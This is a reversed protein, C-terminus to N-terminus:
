ETHLLLQKTKSAAKVEKLTQDAAWILVYEDEDFIWYTWEAADVSKTKDARPYGLSMIVQEKTMGTTVKGALIAARISKPFTALKEQPNTKVALRAVFKEVTDQERGFDLGIWMPRGEIEVFARHRGYEKVIIRSGAPIMPLPVWNADSIWDGEYRLNCCTYLANAPIAGAAVQAAVGRIKQGVIAGTAEDELWVERKFADLIGVVRYRVNERLEAEVFGDVAYSAASSFISQIPAAHAYRATLKLKTKGAAIRREFPRVQLDTGRGFSAAMSAQLNNQPIQKGGAESLYFFAAGGMGGGTATDAIVASPGTPVEPAQPATACGAVLMVSVVLMFRRLM